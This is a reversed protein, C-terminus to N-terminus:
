LLFAAAEYPMCEPASTSAAVGLRMVPPVDSAGCSALVRLQEFACCATGTTLPLVEGDCSLIEASTTDSCQPMACLELPPDTVFTLETITACAGDSADLVFWDADLADALAADWNAHCDQAAGFPIASAQTADDNPEHPDNCAAVSTEGSSESEAAEGGSSGESSGSAGATATSQDGTGSGLADSPVCEGALGEPAGQPYALGSPCQPNPYACRGGEVCRGPEGALTCQEDDDCAFGESGCAQALGLCLGLCLGVVLRWRMAPLLM